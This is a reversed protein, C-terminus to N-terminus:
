VNKISLNCICTMPVKQWHKMRINQFKQCFSKKWNLGECVFEVNWGVHQIFHQVHQNFHQITTERAMWCKMWCTMDICHSGVELQTSHNRRGHRFLIYVLIRAAYWIFRINLCEFTPHFIHLRLWCTFFNSSVLFHQIFIKFRVDDLM